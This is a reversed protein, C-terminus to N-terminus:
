DMMKLHVIPTENEEAGGNVEKIFNVFLLAMDSPMYGMFQYDCENLWEEVPKKIYKTSM